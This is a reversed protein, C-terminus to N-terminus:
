FLIIKFIPKKIENKSKRKIKTEPLSKNTEKLNLTKLLLIIKIIKEILTLTKM